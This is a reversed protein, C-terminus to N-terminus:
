LAAAAAVDQSPIVYAVSGQWKLDGYYPIRRSDVDAFHTGDSNFIRVIGSRLGAQFLADAAAFVADTFSRGAALDGTGFMRGDATRALWGSGHVHTGYLCIEAVPSKSM